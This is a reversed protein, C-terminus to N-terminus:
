RDVPGIVSVHQLIETRVRDLLHQRLSGDGILCFHLRSDGAAQRQRATQWAAQRQLQQLAESVICWRHGRSGSPKGLAPCRGQHQLVGTLTSCHPHRTPRDGATRLDVAIQQQFNSPRQLTSSASWARLM